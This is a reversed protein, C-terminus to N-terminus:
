LALNLSVGGWLLDEERYPEADRADRDLLSVWALKASVSLADTLAYTAYVSANFDMLGSEDVGVYAMYDDDGAGVSIEAGLTLQDSLAVEKNLGANFYFGDLLDYDYTLSAFPTVLDNNHSVSLYVEKTSDCYDRGNVKPFTYWLHGWELTFDGADFTHFLSYDIENLGGGSVQRNRDTLDLNGWLGLGFTGFEGTAYALTAAPQFVPEDNYVCGRWVYASFLDLTLAFSLGATEAEKAAAPAAEQALAGGTLGIWFAAALVGNRM